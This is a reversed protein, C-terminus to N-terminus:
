KTENQKEKNLDKELWNIFGDLTPMPYPENYVIYSLSDALIDKKYEIMKELLTTLVIKKTDEYSASFLLTDPNNIIEALYNRYEISLTCDPATNFLGQGFVPFALLLILLYRM